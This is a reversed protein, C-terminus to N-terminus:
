NSLTLSIAPAYKKMEQISNIPSLQWKGKRYLYFNDNRDKRGYKAYGIIPAYYLENETIRDNEGYENFPILLKEFAIFLGNEPMELNYNAIDISVKKQGEKIEVPVNVNLIDEKPMGTKTDKNFVRIRFKAKKRHANRKSFHIELTELYSCCSARKDKPFYKALMRMGSTHVGEVRSKVEGLVVSKEIRKTLTIEDLVINLAQLYFTKKYLDKAFVLTDKYNLCSVHVKSELYKKNLNMSFIGGENSSIGKNSNLFSINAYVVPEQTKSDVLKGKFEIKQSFLQTSIFLFFLLNKM